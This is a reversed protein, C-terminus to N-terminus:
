THACVCRLLSFSSIGAETINNAIICIVEEKEINLVTQLGLGTKKSLTRLHRWSYSRNQDDFLVRTTDSFEKKPNEFLATWLDVTPIECTKIPNTYLM